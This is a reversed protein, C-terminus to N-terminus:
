SQQPNKLIQISIYLHSSSWNVNHLRLVDELV